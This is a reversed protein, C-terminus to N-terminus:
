LNTLTIFSAPALTTIQNWGLGLASLQSLGSFTQQNITTLQNNSLDLSQLNTANGAQFRTINANSLGQINQLLEPNAITVEYSGADKYVCNFSQDGNCIIEGGGCDVMLPTASPIKSLSITKSSNAPLTRTWKMADATSHPILTTDEALTFSTLLSILLLTPLVLFSKMPYFYFLLIYYRSSNYESQPM